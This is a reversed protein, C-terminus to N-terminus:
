GERWLKQICSNKGQNSTFGSKLHTSKAITENIIRCQLCFNRYIPYKMKKMHTLAPCKKVKLTIEKDDERTIEFGGREITFIHQWHEELASLGERKIKTILDRYLNGGAQRLYEKLTKEGHKEDLFQLGCSLGGHFDMHVKGM